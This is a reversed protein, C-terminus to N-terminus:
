ARSALGATFIHKMFSCSRAHAAHCAPQVSTSCTLGAAHMRQMGPRSRMHQPTSRASLNVTCM